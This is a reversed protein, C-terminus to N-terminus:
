ARTAVSRTRFAISPYPLSIRPTRNTRFDSRIKSAGSQPPRARVVVNWGVDFGVQSNSIRISCRVAGLATTKSGNLPLPDCIM